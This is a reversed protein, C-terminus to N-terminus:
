AKERSIAASNSCGLGRNVTGDDPTQAVTIGPIWYNRVKLQFPLFGIWSAHNRASFQPENRGVGSPRLFSPRVAGPGLAGVACPRSGAQRAVALSDCREDGPRPMEAAPLGLHDRLLVRLFCSLVALVAPAASQLDIPEDGQSIGQSLHPRWTHVLGPVQVYGAACAFSRNSRRGLLWSSRAIRSSWSSRPNAKLLDLEAASAGENKRVDDAHDFAQDRGLQAM